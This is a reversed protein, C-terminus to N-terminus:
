ENYKQAINNINKEISALQTLISEDNTQRLKERLETVKQKLIIQEIRVLCDIAMEYVPKFKEIDFTLDIM